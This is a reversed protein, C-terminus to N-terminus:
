PSVGCIASDVQGEEPTVNSETWPPLVPSQLTPPTSTLYKKGAEAGAGREGWQVPMM